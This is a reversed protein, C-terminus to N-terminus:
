SAIGSSEEIRGNRSFKWDSHRSTSEREHGVRRTTPSARRSEVYGHHADELELRQACTQQQLESTCTNLSEVKYEQNMLESRAEAPLHDRNEDLLSKAVNAPNCFRIFPEDSGLVQQHRLSFEDRDSFTDQNLRNQSSFVAVPKGTSTPDQSSSSMLKEQKFHYVQTRHHPWWLVFNNTTLALNRSRRSAKRSSAPQHQLRSTSPCPDSVYIRTNLSSVTERDEAIWNPECGTLPPTETLAGSQQPRQDECPQESQQFVSEPFPSSPTGTRPTLNQLTHSM